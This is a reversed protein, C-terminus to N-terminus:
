WLTFLRAGDAADLRDGESMWYKKIVLGPQEVIANEIAESFQM